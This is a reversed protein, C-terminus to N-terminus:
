MMGMGIILDDAKKKQEDSLTNYLALTAASISKSTVCRDAMIKDRLKLREQLTAPADASMM